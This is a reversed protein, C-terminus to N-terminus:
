RTLWVPEFVVQHAPRFMNDLFFANPQGTPIGFGCCHAFFPSLLLLAHAICVLNGEGDYVGLAM